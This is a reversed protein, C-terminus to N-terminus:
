ILNKPNIKGLQFYFCAGEGPKAEAWIKGKHREIIRYATALGIGTGEFEERGHLRSFPKFLKDAYKMNFGSGNDRVYFVTIADAQTISGIEICPQPTKGTYKWANGILNTLIIHLLHRDARVFLNDAIQWQFQHDPQNFELEERVEQAITAIDCTTMILNTRSVRSLELIDDILQAMRQTGRRIRHLHQKGEEDLQEAYDVLLVLSFGDITRLPSRLDHSVTYSFTELEKNALLLEQTREDVRERLRGEENRLQEFATILRIEMENFARSLMGVEDQHELLASNLAPHDHELSLQSVYQTLQSIPATHRRVIILTAGLMLLLSGLILAYFKFTRIASINSRGPYFAVHANALHQDGLMAPYIVETVTLGRYPIERTM